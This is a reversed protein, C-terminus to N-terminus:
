GVAALTPLGPLEDARPVAVRPPLPLVVPLRRGAGVGHHRAGGVAESADLRRAARPVAEAVAPVHDVGDLHIDCLPSPAAARASTTPTRAAAAGRSARACAAGIGWVGPQSSTM